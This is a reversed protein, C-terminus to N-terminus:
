KENNEQETKLLKLLVDRLDKENMPKSVHANMGAEESKRIDEEFANATMAIIPISAADKRPLSRIMQTAEYGGINPMMVDMLIADYYGEASAAFKDYAEQGSVAQEVEAGANMVMMQAIVRNIEVDDVILMRRGYLYKMSSADTMAHETLRILEELLISAFLPRPLFSDAGMQQVSTLYSLSQAETILVITQTKSAQRLAKVAEESHDHMDVFVAAYRHSNMQRVAEDTSNVHTCVIEARQLIQSLDQKKEVGDQLVLVQQGRLIQYRAMAEEEPLTQMPLTVMFKSGKGVKSEVHIKGHMAAVINKVISLGLGTGEVQNVTSNVERTFAEFIKQLHEKEIGIGTDAIIFQYVATSGDYSMEQFTFDINGGSPTYKYANNILNLLVQRCRVADGNVFEHVVNISHVHLDQSKSTCMPEAISYVDKVIEPVAFPQQSLVMKGSEIKSLDLVDNILSLLQQSSTKVIKLDEEAKGANGHHLDQSAINTMGIIANMPTRIDHSMNALFESKSANAKRAKEATEVLVIENQKELRNYLYLTFTMIIVMIIVIIFAAKTNRAAIDTMELTMNGYHQTVAESFARVNDDLEYKASSYKSGLIYDYGLLYQQSAPLNKEEDTLAIKYNGEPLESEDVGNSLAVLEMAWIERNSLDDSEIKADQMRSIERSSLGLRFLAQLATDRNRTVTLEEIYNQFHVLDKTECYYKAEMSMRNSGEEFREVMQFAGQRTTEFQRIKDARSNFNVFMIGMLGIAFAMIMAIMIPFVALIKKQQKASWKM